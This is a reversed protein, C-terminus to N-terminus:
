VVCQSLARGEWAFLMRSSVAGLATYFLPSVQFTLSEACAVLKRPTSPPTADGDSFSFAGLATYCGTGM